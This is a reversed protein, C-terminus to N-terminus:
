VDSNNESAATAGLECGMSSPVASLPPFRVTQKGYISELWYDNMWDAYGLLEGQRRELEPSWPEYGTMLDIMAQM